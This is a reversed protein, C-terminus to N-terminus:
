SAKRSKKSKDTETEATELKLEETTSSLKEQEARERDWKTDRAQAVKAVLEQALKSDAAIAECFAPMGVWKRDEYVYSVNSPKSVVDYALALGAIESEQEVIGKTFEIKFECKRPWIGFKSKEITARLAQGIKNEKEDVIRSDKANIAEFYVNASLFHSYTNGGSYTHDGSYPDMNAKKHNIIIFPIGAKNVELSVKKLTTALFRALLSINMKGVASIDEGPPILSGLSDLVIININLEKSAIKDFLGEKSKGKYIHTKAEEKPVGLLMEFCKRGNVATDGDVVIVKSLNLGLQRAWTPSFTQEADIFVQQATPDLKQAELMAIMAMLTKGSGPPGYYQILRGCPLGGSSLADDLALSGTPIVKVKEALVEHARHFDLEEESDAFSKFFAEFKDDKKKDSM